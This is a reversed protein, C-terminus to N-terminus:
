PLEKVFRNLRAVQMNMDNGFVQQFDRLRESPSPDPFFGSKSATTKLYRALERPHREALMFTYAWSVAYAPLPTTRFAEDSAVITKLTREDVGDPFFRLFNQLHRRNIRDKLDPYSEATNIGRAEFLTGLGESIWSPPNSWRNQIGTNFATQHAAEHVVTANTERWDRGLRGSSQDYLMIRNSLMCYYGLVGNMTMGDAKAHRHFEEKTPFVIAILPFRPSRVAIGRSTFYHVMERYLQEFREAWRDRQGAPHVVLYHGTGSVDYASGFEQMLSSRLEGQSFSTFPKVVMQAEPARAIDFEWLKGDRALMYFFGNNWHVADGELTRKDETIRLIWDQGEVLKPAVLFVFFALLTLKKCNQM